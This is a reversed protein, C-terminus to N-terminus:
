SAGYILGVKTLGNSQPEVTVSLSRKSGSQGFMLVRHASNSGNMSSSDLQAILQAGTAAKKYFDVISDPTAQVNYVVVGGTSSGMTSVVSAGAYLPAYAPMNAPLQKGITVAQGNDGHVTVTGGPGMETRPGCACLALAAGLSIIATKM